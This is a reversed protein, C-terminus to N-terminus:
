INRASSITNWNKLELAILSFIKSIIKMHTPYINKMMQFINSIIMISDDEDESTESFDIYWENKSDVDEIYKKMVGKDLKYIAYRQDPKSHKRNKMFRKRRKKSNTNIKNIKGLESMM